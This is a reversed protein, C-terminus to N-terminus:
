LPHTITNRSWLTLKLALSVSELGPVSGIDATTVNRLALLPAGPKAPSVEPPTAETGMMMAALANKDTDKTNVGGAMKGHRLVVVRDAIAM